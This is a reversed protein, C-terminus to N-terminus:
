RRLWVYVIVGPRGTPLGYKRTTADYERCGGTTAYVEVMEIDSTKFDKITLFREERGNVYLACTPANAVIMGRSYVSPAYQLGVDLRAEPLTSLEQMGIVASTNKTRRHVRMEMDRLRGEFLADSRSALSDLAANLEVAGDPPVAVSILRTRFTHRRFALVYGGERATSFAFNGDDGTTARFSTGMVEISTRALPNGTTASVVKGIIGTRRAVVRLTDLRRELPRLVVEIHLGGEPVSVVRDDPHYGIWTVRLAHEGPSTNTFRFRGEADTRAVRTNGNPDLAVGAGSLPRGTTDRVVGSVVGPVAQGNLHRPVSASLVVLM